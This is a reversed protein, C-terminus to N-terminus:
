HVRQVGLRNPHIHGSTAACECYKLNILIHTNKTSWPHDKAIVIPDGQKWSKCTCLKGFIWQSGDSLSIIKQNYDLAAIKISESLPPSFPAFDFVQDRDINYVLVSERDVVKHFILREGPEWAIVVNEVYEFEFSDEKDAYFSNAEYNLEQVQWKSGDQLEIFYGGLHIDKITYIYDFEDIEVLRSRDIFFRGTKLNVSKAEMQTLNMICLFFVVCLSKFNM